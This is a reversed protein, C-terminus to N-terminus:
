KRQQQHASPKNLYGVREKVLCLDEIKLRGRYILRLSKKMRRPNKSRDDHGYAKRHRTEM